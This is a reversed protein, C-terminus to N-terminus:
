LSFKVYIHGVDNGVVMFMFSSKILSESSDPRARLTKHAIDLKIKMTPRPSTRNDNEKQLLFSSSLITSNVWWIIHRALLFASSGSNLGGSVIVWPRGM